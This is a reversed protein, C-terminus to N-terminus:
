VYIDYQKNLSGIAPTKDDTGNIEALMEELYENNVNFNKSSTNKEKNGGGVDNKKKKKDNKKKSSISLTNNNQNADMVKEEEINENATVDDNHLDNDTDPMAFINSIYSVFSDLM